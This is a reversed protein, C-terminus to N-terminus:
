PFTFDSATVYPKLILEQTRISGVLYLCLIYLLVVTSLVRVRHCHTLMKMYTNDPCKPIIGKVAISSVNAYFRM